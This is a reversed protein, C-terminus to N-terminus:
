LPCNSLLSSCVMRTFITETALIFGDKACVKPLLLVTQDPIEMPGSFRNQSQWGPSALSGGPPSSPNPKLILTVFQLMLLLPQESEKRLINERPSLFIWSLTKLPFVQLTPFLISSIPSPPPQSSWLGATSPPGSDSVEFCGEDRRYGQHCRFPLSLGPPQAYVAFRKPM